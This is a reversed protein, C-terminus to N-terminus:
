KKHEDNDDDDDDDDDDTATNHTCIMFSVLSYFFKGNNAGSDTM